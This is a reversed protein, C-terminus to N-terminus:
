SGEDEAELACLSAYNVVPEFSLVLKGQANPRVHRFTKLLPHLTGAEKFIDFNSLLRTGNLDLHFLRSGVGSQTRDYETGWYAEAFHATVTYSDRPDAPIAYSFHGFREAAYLNADSTGTV